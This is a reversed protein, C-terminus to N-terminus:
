STEFFAILNDLDYSDLVELLSPVKSKVNQGKFKFRDIYLDTIMGTFVFYFHTFAFGRLISWNCNDSIILTVIFLLIM